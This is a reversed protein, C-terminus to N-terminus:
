SPLVAYVGVAVVAVLLAWGISWTLMEVRAGAQCNDLQTLWSSLESGAPTSPGVLQACRRLAAALVTGRISLYLTNGVFVSAALATGVLLAFRLVTEDPPRLLDASSAGPRQALRTPPGASSM